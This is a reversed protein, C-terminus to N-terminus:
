AYSELNGDFGADIVSNNVTTTVEIKIIAPGQIRNRPKFPHIGDSTGTTVLGKTHKTVFGVLENDCYQNVKLKVEAGLTTVAKNTTAYYDTMSFVQYSPIGYVAMQTQGEGANIQATVTGDTDATATIVGVNPGASGWETVKMRHIIVNSPTAVNSTGNMTLETSAEATDWDALYYVMVKQAGTGAATDNANDSTLQHVRAQTPAVWTYVSDTSNAGDQVDTTVGSDADTCRGFKNVGSDSGYSEIQWNAGHWVYVNGTDTEWAESNVREGFTSSDPTPKTETSLGEYVYTNKAENGLLVYAM